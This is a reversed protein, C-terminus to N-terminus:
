CKIDAIFIKLINNEKEIRDLIDNTIKQYNSESINGSKEINDSSVKIEREIIENNKLIRNVIDCQGIFIGHSWLNRVVLLLLFFIIWLIVLLVIDQM